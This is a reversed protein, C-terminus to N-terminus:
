EQGIHLRFEEKQDNNCKRWADKLVKVADKKIASDVPSTRSKTTSRTVTSKDEPDKLDEILRIAGSMSLGSLNPAKALLEAEKSALEMYCQATRLPMNTNAAQWEIWNGHGVIEKAKLLLKGANIARQCGSVLASKFENHEANIQKALTILDPSAPAIIEATSLGNM